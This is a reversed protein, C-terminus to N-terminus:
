AGGDVDVEEQENARPAPAKDSCRSPNGGPGTSEISAFEYAEIVELDWCPRGLLLQAPPLQGRHRAQYIAGPTRGWRNALDGIYLKV